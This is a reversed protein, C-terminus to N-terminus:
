IEIGKVWLWLVVTTYIQVLERVVLSWSHKGLCLAVAGILTYAISIMILAVASPRSQFWVGCSLLVLVPCMIAMYLSSDRLGM